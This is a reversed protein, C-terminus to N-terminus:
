HAPEGAPKGVVPDLPLDVDRRGSRLDVLSVLEYRRDVCGVLLDEALRRPAVHGAPEGVGRRQRAVPDRGDVVAGRGPQHVDLLTLIELDVAEDAGGLRVCANRHADAADRSPRHQILVFCSCDCGAAQALPSRTSDFRLRRLAHSSPPYTFSTVNPSPVPRTPTSSPSSIATRSTGVIRSYKSRPPAPSVPSRTASVSVRRRAGMTGFFNKWVAPFKRSCLVSDSCTLQDCSM